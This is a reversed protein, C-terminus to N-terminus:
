WGGQRIFLIDSVSGGAHEHFEHGGRLCVAVCGIAAGAEFFFCDAFEDVLREGLRDWLGDYDGYCRVCFGEDAFEDVTGEGDTVFAGDYSCM